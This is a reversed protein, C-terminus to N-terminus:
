HCVTRDHLLTEERIQGWHECRLFGLIVDNSLDSCLREIVAPVPHVKGAHWHWILQTRIQSGARNRYNSHCLPALDSGRFPPLGEMKTDGLHERCSEPPAAQAASDNSLGQV